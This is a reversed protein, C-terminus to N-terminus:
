YLSIDISLQDLGGCDLKEATIGYIGLADLCKLLDLKAENTPKEEPWPPHSHRGELLVIVIHRDKDLSTNACKCVSCQQDIM